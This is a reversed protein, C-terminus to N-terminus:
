VREVYELTETNVRIVDGENIFMPVTLTAGTELVVLKNGGKATNGKVAPHAETVKLEVKIPLRVGIIREGFMLLDLVTNPKVFKMGEGLSAGDIKYRDGPNKPDCFWFEGKTNYLYKAEKKEIDAEPAKDSAHFTMDMVRGTIMNRLKTKNQPKRQQMRFINNDIVEYPEGEVVIYKRVTIENYELIAM